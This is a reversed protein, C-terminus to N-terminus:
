FRADPTSPILPSIPLVAKKQEDELFASMNKRLRRYDPADEGEGDADTESDYIALKEGTGDHMTEANMMDKLNMTQITTITMDEPLLNANNLVFIYKRMIRAVNLLVFVLAVFGMVLAVWLLPLSEPPPTQVKKEKAAARVTEELLFRAAAQIADGKVQKRYESMEKYWFIVKATSAAFNM